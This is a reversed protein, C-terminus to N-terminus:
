SGKKLAEIEAKLQKNEAQLDMVKQRLVKAEKATSMQRFVSAGLAQIVDNEDLSIVMEQPPPVARLQPGQEIADERRNNSEM